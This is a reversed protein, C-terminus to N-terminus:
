AKAGLLSYSAGDVGIEAGLGRQTLGALARGARLQRGNVLPASPMFSHKSKGTAKAKSAAPKNPLKSVASPKLEESNM